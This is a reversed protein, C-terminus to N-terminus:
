RVCALNATCYVIEINKTKKNKKGHATFIRIICLLDCARQRWLSTRSPPWIPRVIYLEINKIKKFQKGHATFIRIICLLDCARQRWLSTGSPPWIPRVIYLEINKTKKNKERSCHFDQNYMVSRMSSAAGM